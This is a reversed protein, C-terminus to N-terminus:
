PNRNRERALFREAVWAAVTAKLGFALAAGIVTILWGALGFAAVILVAKTDSSM